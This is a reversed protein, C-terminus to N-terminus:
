LGALGFLNSWITRALDVLLSGVIGDIGAVMPRSSCQFYTAEKIAIQYGFKPASLYTVTGRRLVSTKFASGGVAIGSHGTM